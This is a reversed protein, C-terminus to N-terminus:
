STPRPPWKILLILPYVALSIWTFLQFSNVFGIMVAQRMTEGSLQALGRVSEHDWSGKVWPLRLAESFASLNSVLEAYNINGTYFVVVFSASVFFSSGVSRIFHFMGAAEASKAMPLNSFLVLTIPTWLLGVGLGQVFSILAVDFLTLNIDLTAMALGAVTHAGFGLLMLLRPDIRASLFLMMIQTIATGSGRVAIMMGIAFDPVGHLQQLATPLMVTPTIFLMGFILSIMMGLTFNRDTFLRLDLFPRKATLSHVLFVWLAAGAVFLEAVIEFSALWDNRMGRDLVLQICAVAVALSLFGTWDLRAARNGRDADRVFLAIGLFALVGLPVLIFFVWSWSWEESVYGGLLPAVTPGLGVGLGYFAIAPGRSRGPFQDLVVSQSVPVLPSGCASQVVRWFILEELSTSLGCLLSSLVFGGVGYLMTRKRGFRASLWGAMPITVATAILNASIVWAIQDPTASMAGQIKPLSVNAITLTTAYLTTVV